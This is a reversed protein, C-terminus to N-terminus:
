EDRVPTEASSKAKLRKMEAPADVVTAPGEDDKKGLNLIKKVTSRNDKANEVAERDVAERINPVAKAAGAKQLLVNESVSPVSLGTDQAAKEGVVAVKADLVASADQPRRAGPQPAPLSDLNAPVELPARKMVSFEDPTRRTLGLEEKARDCGSVIPLALLSLFSFTLLSVKTM